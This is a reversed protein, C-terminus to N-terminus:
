MQGSMAAIYYNAAYTTLLILLIDKQKNDYSIDYNYSFKSWNFDPNLLMLKQHNEDELVYKDQFTGTTKLIFNKGDPFSIIIHGKWNMQLNAVEIEDKTVSITSSFIGKPTIKYNDKGIVANASYSFLGDYTIHGLKESGDILEFTKKDTCQIKM